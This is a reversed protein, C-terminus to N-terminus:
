SLSGSPNLLWDFYREPDFPNAAEPAFVAHMATQMAAAIDVPDARDYPTLVPGAVERNQATDPAVVPVGALRAEALPYGFSEIRTPYVLARCGRQLGALRDPSLRGVFRLRHAGALGEARAESATATVTVRVDAGSAESVLEAAEDVPRLLAGMAKFPAFLVPCLFDPTGPAGLPTAAGRDERPRPIPSLPHPRVVIRSALGPVAASVREAMATTPVVVVDSRRACARVVHATGLVKPPLGGPLRRIDEPPLFHLLNRLLVWRQAGSAVFGINNLAVARRYRAPRERRALWSPAMGRGRGVLHVPAAPRANLYSDLETLFRLAGGMRAGACDVLVGSAGSPGTM